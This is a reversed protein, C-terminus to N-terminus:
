FRLKRLLTSSMYINYLKYEYMYQIHLLQPPHLQQADTRSIHPLLYMYLIIAIMYRHPTESEIYVTCPTFSGGGGGGVGGWGLVVGRGRAM